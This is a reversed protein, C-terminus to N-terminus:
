DICCDCDQYEVTGSSGALNYAWTEAVGRGWSTKRLYGEEDFVLYKKRQGDKEKHMKITIKM